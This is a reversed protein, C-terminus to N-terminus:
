LEKGDLLVNDFKSIFKELAKEDEVLGRAYSFDSRDTIGKLITAEITEIAELKQEATPYKLGLQYAQGMNKQYAYEQLRKLMIPNNKHKEILDIVERENLELELVKIDKIKEATPLAWNRVDKKYLEVRDRIKEITDLEIEQLKNKIAEIEEREGTKDILNSYRAKVNSIEAELENRKKFYQNKYHIIDKVYLNKIAM